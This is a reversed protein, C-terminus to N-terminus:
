QLHEEEQKKQAESMQGGELTALAAAAALEADDDDKEEPMDEVYEVGAAEDGAQGNLESAAATGGRFGRKGKKSKRPLGPTGSKFSVVSGATVGHVSASDLSGERSFAVGPTATDPPSLASVSM